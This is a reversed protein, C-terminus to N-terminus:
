KPWRLKIEAKKADIAALTAACQSTVYDATMDDVLSRYALARITDICEAPCAPVNDGVEVGSTIYEIEFLTYNKFITDAQFDPYVSFVKNDKIIILM